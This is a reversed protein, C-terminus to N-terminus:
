ALVEEIFRDPDDVIGAAVLPGVVKQAFDRTETVSRGREADQAARTRIREAADEILPDATVTVPRVDEYKLPPLGAVSAADEANYGARVLVGAVDARDKLSLDIAGDALLTAINLPVLPKSLGDVPNWDELARAESRLMIPGGTAAVYGEMRTKFDGRLLGNLNFKVYAPEDDFFLKANCAAETNRVIPAITHKALWLDQQESNTYTGHTLDQVMALPVRWTRCVQELIWRQQTTLDADKLSMNNQVSKLGRDLVRMEGAHDVGAFAKMNKAIAEIDEPRLVAETELHRPFHNGNNLFRGFFRETDIALGINEATLDVLSRGEYPNAVVPGKFHLIDQSAYDDARTFTDGRYRYVLRGNATVAKPKEGTLPWLNVIRGNLREVRVYANGTLDETIQKWRWFEPGTLFENPRNSLLRDAPHDGQQIRTDGDKRFVGVPLSAVTESRVIVCALVAVNAMASDASISAGSSTVNAWSALWAQYLLSSTELARTEDKRRFPNLNM